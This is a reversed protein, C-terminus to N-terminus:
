VAHLHGPGPPDDALRMAADADVNRV